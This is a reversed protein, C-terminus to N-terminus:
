SPPFSFCTWQSPMFHFSIPNTGIGTCDHPNQLPITPSRNLVLWSKTVMKSIGCTM